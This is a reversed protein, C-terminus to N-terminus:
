REGRQHERFAQISPLGTVGCTCDVGIAHHPVAPPPAKPDLWYLVGPGMANDTVRGRGLVGKRAMRGMENAVRQRWSSETFGDPVPIGDAVENPRYRGPSGGPSPHDTIWQRIIASLSPAPTTETM